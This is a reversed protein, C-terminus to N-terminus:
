LQEQEGYRFTGLLVRDRGVHEEVQLVVGRLRGIDRGLMRFPDGLQRFLGLLSLGFDQLVFSRGALEVIHLLSISRGIAESERYECWCSSNLLSLCLAM